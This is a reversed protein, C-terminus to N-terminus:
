DRADHKEEVCEGLWSIFDDVLEAIRCDDWEDFDDLSMTGVLFATKVRTLDFIYSDPIGAWDSFYEILVDRREDASMAYLRDANTRKHECM